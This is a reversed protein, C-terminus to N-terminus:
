GCSDEGWGTKLDKLIEALYQFPGLILWLTLLKTGYKKYACYYILGMQLLGVSAGVALEQFEEAEYLLSFHIKNFFLRLTLVLCIFISWGICNIATALLWQKRLTANLSSIKGNSKM